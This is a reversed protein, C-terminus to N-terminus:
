QDDVTTVKATTSTKCAVSAMMAAFIFIYQLHKM